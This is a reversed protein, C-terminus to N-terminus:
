APISVHFSSFFAVQSIPHHLHRHWTSPFSSPWPSPPHIQRSFVHFPNSSLLSVFNISDFPFYKRATAVGFLFGFSFSSTETPLSRGIDHFPKKIHKKYLKYLFIDDTLFTKMIKEVFDANSSRLFTQLVHPIPPESRSDVTKQDKSVNRYNKVLFRKKSSVM